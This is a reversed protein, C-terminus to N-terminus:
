RLYLHFVPSPSMAAEPTNGYAGMNVRRGHYGVGPIFPEGKYDSKPDGADLAPSKEGKYKFVEGGVMYGKPCRLHVDLVACAGRADNGNLYWYTSGDTFLSTFDDATSVLLPDKFIVGQGINTIGGEIVSIYNTESGTVLSYSMNLIGKSRVAIDAGAAEAYTKWGRVNGYVISNKLNVTGTGVTIGAANWRGQTINYAITCNEVDLTQNTASMAVAIAGACTTEAPMQMSQFDSNGVFACNVLKSGGSAGAFEVVGGVTAERLAAGCGAFRCNSFVTPTANVFAAAGRYRAWGGNAKFSTGNTVFLCHDVYAAACSDFYLAGGGSNDEAPGIMNLFNCNTVAVTGAGTAYIGRGAITGSGNPNTFLCDLVRLDGKGSKKLEQQSSHSFRICEVTLLVGQPVVFDMTRFVNNGDLWTMAGEPREAESNEVGAFGGRITLPYALTISKTMYDNTVALWIETIGEPPAANLATGLDPYADTWSTGDMKCDAGTRVHIVGPGGGKGYYSPLTGTASESENYQRTEAGDADIKVAADLVTGVPLYAPLKYEIVDGNGIGYYIEEACIEGGVSCILQVTASYATGSELGMTIRVLPRPEGDPYLIEVNADPQGEATCSAEATNGFAGANLRGGNPSPENTCDATPDGADIAPSYKLTAPGAAGGNVVYGAPSLLHADMTALDEYRTANGPTYYMRAATVTVINTFDGTTTVLMPDAAFVTDPDYSLNAGVLATGDMTTVTSYRITASGASGVQVDSGYGVTTLHYRSNKWLVTNVIDVDGKVVTIGGASYEGQTFNYAFTCHDVTVRDTSSNLKVVLAGGCDISGGAQYSRHETNGIFTCHDFVSGGSKGALAIVGGAWRSDGSNMRVPCCNGAFRSRRVTLPTNNAYIASGPSSYGCWTYGGGYAEPTTIDYGNTVFLSKDVLASKFNNIYLGHGGYNTDQAVNRNGAFVCNSVVLSGGGDSQVNMGRGYVTNVQRGNAEAVCDFLQLGGKGVKIFGNGRARRFTLRDLIIDDDTGSEIRLLTTAATEGDFVTQAGPQREDLTMETGAFGGHITLAANNTISLSSAPVTGAAIWIECPEDTTGLMAFLNTVSMATAWSLGDGEEDVEPKAFYQNVVFFTAYGVKGEYAGIGTITITALGTATNNEYAVTYDSDKVLVAGGARVVPDPFCGGPALFQNQIPDIAFDAPKFALIVTGCGGAGGIFYTNNWWGSGGGGGGLGDTGKMGHSGRVGDGGGGVGGFGRDYEDWGYNSGGGGGGGAYYISEGTIDNVIGEGGDGAKKPDDSYVYGTHGAGGGGGARSAYGSGAGACGQGETGAGGAGGCCGGGGSGGATADKQDYGGGGGGGRAIYSIGRIVFTTDGGKGGRNRSTGSVGGAGVTFSAVDGPGYTANVGDMAIVGGGGGGGGFSNGGAGGGGVLLIESLLLNRKATVAQASAANTFVYVYKDGVVRRRASSDFTSINDDDLSTATINFNAKLVEGEFDGKGTATVTAVGVGDDNNTYAVDFDASVIDGGIQWTQASTVNTVIFEPRCVDGFNYNQDHIPCIMLPTVIRLSIDDLFLSQDVNSDTRGDFKLTHEGPDLILGEVSRYRVDGGTVKEEPYIVEGDLLVAYYVPTDPSFNNRHKCKWSLSVRCPYGNTFTQEVSGTRKIMGCYTGTIFTPSYNPGHANSSDIVVVSGTAALGTMPSGIWGPALSGAEFGGNVLFEDTILYKRTLTEGEYESGAKGTATVTGVGDAYSYAIDFPTVGSAVGGEAFVWSAGTEANTVTFGPEPHGGSFAYQTPIPLITLDSYLGLSGGLAIMQETSLASAYVRLDDILGGGYIAEPSIVNGHRSGIQMSNMSNARPTSTTTGALVGDVYLDVRGSLINMVYLHYDTDANEIDNVTILATTSNGQTLVVQNAATGRRLMIGSNNSSNRFHVLIGCSTTGLAAVVAISSDRNATIVGSVSDGWPTYVRADLACGDVSPVYTPTGKDKMTATGTGTNALSQSNFTMCLTPVLDTADAGVPRTKWQWLLRRGDAPTPHEYSFSTETGKSVVTGDEDCLEWGKYICEITGNTVVTAGCSVPVTNGAELGTQKGYAPSPSGYNEPTGTVILTDDPITFLSDDYYHGEAGATFTGSKTLTAPIACIDVLTANNSSDKCPVFYHILKGSRWVKFSYLRQNGYNDVHNNAGDWYSAFLSIPGGATFSSQPHECSDSQAGGVVDVRKDEATITYKVGATVTLSSVYTSVNSLYDFRFKYGNDNLMFLTWSDTSTTAGRACWITSTKNVTPFAVVAEVKDTQPNPTYDTVICTSSGDGQIYEIETYGSPLTGAAAFVSAASMAVFALVFCYALKKVGNM